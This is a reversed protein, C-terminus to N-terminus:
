YQHTKQTLSGAFRQTFFSKYGLKVNRACPSVPVRGHAVIVRAFTRLLCSRPFSCYVATAPRQHIVDLLALKLCTRQVETARARSLDIATTYNYPPADQDFSVGDSTETALAM